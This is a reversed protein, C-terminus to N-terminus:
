ADSSPGFLKGQRRDIEEQRVAKVIAYVWQLSLGFKRALESHNDGNFEAYIQRDRQSLKLAKGMPFYLNQGGWHLAMRDAVEKGIAGAVDQPVTALEVLMHAVQQSLDTLLELDKKKLRSKGKM